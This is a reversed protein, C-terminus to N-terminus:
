DLLMVSDHIARIMTTQVSPGWFEPSLGAVEQHGMLGLTGGQVPGTPAADDGAAPTDGTGGTPAVAPACAILATAATGVAALQLFKRRSVPRHTIDVTQNTAETM